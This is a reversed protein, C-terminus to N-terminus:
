PLVPAELKFQDATQFSPFFKHVFVIKKPDLPHGRSIVSWFAIFEEVSSFGEYGYLFRAVFGLRFPMIWELLYTQDDVPFFDGPRGYPKSRSTMCKHGDLVAQRMQKHFPIFRERPEVAFEIPRLPKSGDRLRAEGEEIVLTKLDYVRRDSIINLVDRSYEIDDMCCDWSTTVKDHVHGCWERQAGICCYGKDGRHIETKRPKDILRYCAQTCPEVRVKRDGNNERKCSWGHGNKINYPCFWTSM